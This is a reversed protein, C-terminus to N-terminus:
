QRKAAATTAMTQNHNSRAPMISTNTEGDLKGGFFVIVIVFTGAM